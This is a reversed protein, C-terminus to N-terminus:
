LNLFLKLNFWKGYHNIVSAPLLKELNLEIEDDADGYAAQVSYSALLVAAEAQCYLEM